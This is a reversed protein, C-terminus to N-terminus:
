LSLKLFIKLCTGCTTCSLLGCLVIPLQCLVTLCHHTARSLVTVFIKTLTQTFCRKCMDLCLYDYADLSKHAPLKDILYTYIDRLQINPWKSINDVWKTIGYPDPLHHGNTSMLETVYREREKSSLSLTYVLLECYLDVPLAMKETGLSRACGVPM